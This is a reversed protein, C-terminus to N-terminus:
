SLALTSVTPALALLQILLLLQDTGVLQDHATGLELQGLLLLLLQLLDLQHLLVCVSGSTSVRLTGGLEGGLTDLCHAQTVLWWLWHGAVLLSPLTLWHSSAM